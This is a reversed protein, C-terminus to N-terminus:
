LLAYAPSPFNADLHSPSLQDNFSYIPYETVPIIICFMIPIVNAPASIQPNIPSVFGSSQALHCM